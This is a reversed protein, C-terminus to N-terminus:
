SREKRWGEPGGRISPGRAQTYTLAPPKAVDGAAMRADLAERRRRIEARLEDAGLGELRRVAAPDAWTRMAGGSIGSVRVEQGHV